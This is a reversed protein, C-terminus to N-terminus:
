NLHLLKGKQPLRKLEWDRKFMIAQVQRLKGGVVGKRNKMIGHLSVYNRYVSQVRDQLDVESRITDADGLETLAKACDEIDDFFSVCNQHVYSIFTDNNM